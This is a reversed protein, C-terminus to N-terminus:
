HRKMYLKILEKNNVAFHIGIAILILMMGYRILISDMALVTLINVCILVGITVIVYKKDIVSNSDIKKALFYHMIFLILKSLATAYAAGAIGFKIIFVVDLLVNIVVTIMTGFMIYITKKNYYEVTTPISYLVEGFISFSLPVLCYASQWYDKSTFVHVLDPSVLMFAAIIGCFLTIYKGNLNCISKYDRQNLKDYIWPTWAHNLSSQLVMPISVMTSAIAYIGTASYSDIYRILIRDSQILVTSALTHFFLPIGWLLAYRFNVLKFSFSTNTVIMLFIVSLFAGITSGYVRALHASSEKYIFYCLFLSLVVNVITYLGSYAMSLKYEGDAILRAIIINAVSSSAASVFLCNWLRANMSLLEGFNYVYINVIIGFVISLFAPISIVTSIYSDYQVEKTYKAIPITVSLGLLVIVEFISLYSSYVSYVGYEHTDMLRTFIPLVFFSVGKILFNGITYWSAAKIINYKRKGM